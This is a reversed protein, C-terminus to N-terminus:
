FKRLPDHFVRRAVIVGAVIAAVVTAVAVVIAMVEENNM